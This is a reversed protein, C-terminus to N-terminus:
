RENARLFLVPANSLPGRVPSTYFLSAPVTNTWGLTWPPVTTINTTERIEYATNAKGYTTVLRQQNAGRSAELLPQNAIVVARNGFSYAPPMSGDLNTVLPNNLSLPVFASQTSVATFCLSGITQVGMPTNTCSNQLTISWQCNPQPTITGSWCNTANLTVNSLHDCPAQLAFSVSTASSNEGIGLAFCATNQTRVVPSNLLVVAFDHVLRVDDVYWGPAVCSASHFHFAVRVSQGAYPTLDIFPQSWVTSSGTYTASITQWNNPRTQIEVYGYSGEDTCFSGCSCGGAFSYWHWFRLGPSTAAPPVILEPSVFRSDVFGGYNGALVTAACNTGGHASGPGSTPVGVQWTGRETSWDRMGLEFGEPNDLIPTGTVVAVEDVYWGQSTCSASHFHFAVQVEQEAYSSLDISPRSWIGSTALTYNQPSIIQWNNTGVKIEVYGFSGEDTCFSGCSCGGALSYWHWFRLRPYNNSAPVVFPPSIFRSDVFSGYNGALVTAACNTGAFARRGLSNTPPGSAPVGVEWTGREVSWEGLGLEFGEPNSFLPTGTLFAVDDVYWGVDTCGASHFHFAIQVTQDAYARLDISPRSWVASSNGSYRASVTQWGSSGAKIEVYGYSGEDTCFSGCSCGGAFTFWQSFRLRPYNTAPPVVFSAIRIFRSDTHSPYNTTLGTTAAKCGSYTRCGLANTVPGVTPSGIQWVGNEAFWRDDPTADDFNDQWVVTQAIAPLSLSLLACLWIIRGLFYLGNIPNAFRTRITRRTKM